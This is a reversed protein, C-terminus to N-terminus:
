TAPPGFKEYVIAGETGPFWAAMPELAPLMKRTIEMREPVDVSVAADRDDLAEQLREYNRWLFSPSGELVLVYCSLRSDCYHLCHWLRICRQEFKRNHDCQVLNFVATLQTTAYEEDDWRIMFVATDWGEREWLAPGDLQEASSKAAAPARPESGPFPSGADELSSQAVDYTWRM